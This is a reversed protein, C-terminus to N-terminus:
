SRVRLFQVNDQFETINTARSYSISSRLGGQYREILDAAPMGLPLYRVKGESAIGKRVGKWDKQVYHSSMGAYVKVAVDNVIEVEGASSTCRVFIRGAMASNAGAGIAKCFDEPEAIDGDSICPMGLRMSLEKFQAVASFQPFYVGTTPRTACAFGSAQGIKIADVFDVKDMIDPDTTNGLIVKINSYNTKLKKAFAIANDSFCNAIDITIINSGSAILAEALDYQDNGIGVSTAVWELHKAMQRTQAILWENSAARHLIGMAGLRGLEICFSANTVSKMNAAILPCELTVGRAIESKTSVALRSDAISRQPRISVEKFSYAESIIM